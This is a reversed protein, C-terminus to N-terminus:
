SIEILMLVPFQLMKVVIKTDVEAGKKYIIEYYDIYTVNVNIDIIAACVSVMM